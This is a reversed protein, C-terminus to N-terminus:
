LLLLLQPRSPLRSPTTCPRGSTPSSRHRLPPSSESLCFYFTLNHSHGRHRLVVVYLHRATACVWQVQLSRSLSLPAALSNSSPSEPSAPVWSTELIAQFSATELHLSLFFFYFILPGYTVLKIAFRDPRTLLMISWVHIVQNWEIRGGLQSGVSRTSRIKSINSLFIVVSYFNSFWINTQKVM